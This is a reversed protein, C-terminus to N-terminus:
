ILLATLLSTLASPLRAAFENKGLLRMSGASLWYILPPKEFFPQGNVRPTVYDGTLRMERASEVYLGEDLDFIGCGGLRFFFVFLGLFTVLLYAAAPGRTM